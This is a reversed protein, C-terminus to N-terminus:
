QQKTHSLHSNSHQQDETPPKVQNLNSSSNFVENKIVDKSNMKDITTDLTLEAARVAEIDGMVQITKWSVLYNTKRRLAANFVIRLINTILLGFSMGILYSSMICFQISQSTSEKLMVQVIFAIVTLTLINSTAHLLVKAWMPKEKPAMKM